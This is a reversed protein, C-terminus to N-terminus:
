FPLHQIKMNLETVKNMASTHNADLTCLRSLWSLGHLQARFICRYLDGDWDSCYILPENEKVFKAKHVFLEYSFGNECWEGSMIVRWAVWSACLMDVPNGDYQENVEKLIEDLYIDEGKVVLHKYLNWSYVAVKRFSEYSACEVRKRDELAPGYYGAKEKIKAWGSIEAM